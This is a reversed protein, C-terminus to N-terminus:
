MLGIWKFWLYAFPPTIVLAIISFTAARKIVETIRQYGAGYIIIIPVIEYPFIWLTFGGGLLIPVTIPNVGVATAYELFPMSIAAFGGMPTVLLNTVAGLVIMGYVYSLGSLQGFKSAFTTAAWQAIGSEFMLMGLCVACGGFVAVHWKVNKLDDNDLVGARPLFFAGTIAIAVAPAPIKHIFDTIWLLFTIIMWFVFKKEGPSMPGLTLLEERVKGAPLSIPKDPKFIFLTTIIASILIPINAVSYYMWEFYYTSTGTVKDHLSIGVLNEPQTLIFRTPVYIAIMAAFFLCEATKSYRGEGTMELLDGLLVALSVYLILMLSPNILATVVGLGFLGLVIRSYSAGFRDLFILLIRKGLGTKSFGTIWIMLCFMMWSIPAAFGALAMDAPALGLMLVLGLYTLGAIAPDFVEFIWLLVLWTTLAILRWQTLTMDLPNPMFYLVLFVITSIALGYTPKDRSLKDILRTL